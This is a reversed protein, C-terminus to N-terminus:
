LLKLFLRNYSAKKTICRILADVAPNQSTRVRKVADVTGVSLDYVRIFHSVQCAM